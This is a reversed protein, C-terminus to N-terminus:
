LRYEPPGDLRPIHCLMIKVKKKERKWDGTAMKMQKRTANATQKGLKMHKVFQTPEGHAHGLVAHFM